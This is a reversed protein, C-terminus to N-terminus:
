PICQCLKVCRCSEGSCLLVGRPNPTERTEDWETGQIFDTMVSSVAEISRM